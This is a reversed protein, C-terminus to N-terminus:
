KEYCNIKEVRIPFLLDLHFTKDTARTGSVRGRLESVFRKALAGCIGPGDQKAYMFDKESWFRQYMQMIRATELESTKIISLTFNDLYASRQLNIQILADKNSTGIFDQLLLDLVQRFFALDSLVRCNWSYDDCDFIVKANRQLAGARTSSVVEQIVDVMSFTSLQLNFHGSEINFYELYAGIVRLVDRGGQHIVNSAFKVMPDEATHEIYESFGVIGTLTTRIEHSFRDYFSLKQDKRFLQHEM